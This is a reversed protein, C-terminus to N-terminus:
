FKPKHFCGNKYRLCTIISDARIKLLYDDTNQINKIRKFEEKSCIPYYFSYDGSTDGIEDKPIIQQIHIIIDKGLYLTNKENGSIRKTYLEKVTDFQEPDNKRLMIEFIVHSNEFDIQFHEELIKTIRDEM